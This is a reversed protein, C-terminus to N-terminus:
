REYGRILSICGDVYTEMWFGTATGRLPAFRASFPRDDDLRPVLSCNKEARRYSKRSFVAMDAVM